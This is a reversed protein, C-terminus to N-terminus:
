EPKAKLRMSPRRTSQVPTPYPTMICPKGGYGSFVLLSTELDKIEDNLKDYILSDRFIFFDHANGPWNAVVSIFTGLSITFLKIYYHNERWKTSGQAQKDILITVSILCKNNYGVCKIIWVGVM